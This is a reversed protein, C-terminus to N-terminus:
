VFAKVLSSRSSTGGVQEWRWVFVSRTRRRASRTPSSGTSVWWRWCSPSAQLCVWCSWRTALRQWPGKSMTRWRAFTSFRSTSTWREWRQGFLGSCRYPTQGQGSVFSMFPFTHQGYSFYMQPSSESALDREHVNDVIGVVEFVEPEGELDFSVAPDLFEGLPDGAPWFREALARNIVAVGPRGRLDTEEFARGRLLAIGMTRFYEPTVSNYRISPSEREPEPRGVIELGAGIDGGEMPLMTIAGVSEVGSIELIRAMVDDYFAVREDSITEMTFPMSMQFTLTNKPDFGPEVLTLSWFSRILLGAGVLLVVALSVEAVVLASRLRTRSRGETGRAGDKLGQILDPRAAALAPLLGFLLGAVLSLGFSFLLVSGDLRVDGVATLEEPILTVLGDMGWLAFLLALTGGMLGIAASETLLQRAVRWRGAGLAARVSFERQRDTGRALLLSALNACAILLVAGVAAFLILLAPRSDAVLKEHLGLVRIERGVSVEHLEALRGSVEDMQAQSEEVSVDPKLRAVARYARTGREEKFPDGAMTTWIQTEGRTFPFRFRVPLVGVVTTPTGDLTISQGVADTSGGFHSQWSGYSILAVKESGDEDEGAAFTRGLHASIGLVDFFETSVRSGQLREAVGIGTLNHNMRRFVAMQEFAEGQEKWDLFELWSTSSEADEATATWLMSLRGPEAYPLPRLLVANIVSFIATNAGIGLALTLVAVLTFGPAGALLRLGYRIDQILDGM